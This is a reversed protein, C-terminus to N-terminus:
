VRSVFRSGHRPWYDPCQKAEKTLARDPHVACKLHPSSGNFFRCSRCPGLCRKRLRGLSQYAVKAISPCRRVLFVLAIAVIFGLIFSLYQQEVTGQVPMPPQTSEGSIEEISDKQRNPGQYLVESYEM